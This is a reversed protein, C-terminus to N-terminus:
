LGVQCVLLRKPAFGCRLFLSRAASCIVGSSISNEQFRMLTKPQTSRNAQRIFRNKQFRWDSRQQKFQNAQRILTKRIVGSLDKSTLCILRDFWGLMVLLSESCISQYVSSLWRTHHISLCINWVRIFPKILWHEGITSIKKYFIYLFIKGIWFFCTVKCSLHVVSSYYVFCM